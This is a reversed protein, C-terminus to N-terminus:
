HKGRANFLYISLVEDSVSISLGPLRMLKMLRRKFCTQKPRKRQRRWANVMLRRRVREFDRCGGLVAKHADDANEWLSQEKEVIPVYYGVPRRVTQCANNILIDIGNQYHQKLYRTFAETGRLPKLAQSM